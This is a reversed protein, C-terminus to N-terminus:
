GRVVQELLREGSAECVVGAVQGTGCCSEIAPRLTTREGAPCEDVFLRVGRLLQGREAAVMEDWTALWDALVAASALDIQVATTSPCKHLLTGNIAATAADDHREIEVAAPDYGIAEVVDTVDVSSQQTDIAQQCAETFRDSLRLEDNSGYVLIGAEVLQAELTDSDSRAPGAASPGSRSDAANDFWALMWVPMYRKTMTSTGPILYGRLWIALGSLILVVVGIVAPIPPTALAVSLASLVAALVVAMVCNIATCAWCRNQGTYEPQRLSIM